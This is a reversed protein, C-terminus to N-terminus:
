WHLREDNGLRSKDFDVLKKCANKSLLKTDNGNNSKEFDSVKM